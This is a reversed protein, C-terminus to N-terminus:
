GVDICCLLKIVSPHLIPAAEPPFLCYGAAPFLVIIMSLRRYKRCVHNIIYVIMFGKVKEMTTSATATVLVGPSEVCVIPWAWGTWNRWHRASRTFRDMAGSTPVPAM